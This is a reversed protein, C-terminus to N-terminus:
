DIPPANPDPLEVILPILGKFVLNLAGSTLTARPFLPNQKALELVRQRATAVDLSQLLSTYNDELDQVSAHMTLWDEKTIPQTASLHATADYPNGETDRVEFSVSYMGPEPLTLKFETESLKDILASAPGTSELTLTEWNVTGQVHPILTLRSELPAFGVENNIQAEVWGGPSEIRNVTVTSEAKNSFSDTANATITNVGTELSIGPAFFSSGNVLAHTGNVSVEVYPAGSEIHGVVGIRSSSTQSTGTPSTITVALPIERAVLITLYGGPSSNLKIEILNAESLTVPTHQSYVNQNFNSPSIITEGNIRIEASSIRNDGSESGNLITLKGEGPSLSFIDSFVNPSGTIRVFQIPGYVTVEDARPARCFLFLVATLTSLLLFTKM